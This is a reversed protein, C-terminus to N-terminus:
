GAQLPQAALWNLARYAPTPARWRVGLMMEHRILSHLHAIVM